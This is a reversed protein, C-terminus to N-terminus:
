FDGYCYGVNGYGAQFIPKIYPLYRWNLIRFIGNFCPAILVNTSIRPYVSIAPMYSDPYIFDYLDSDVSQYSFMAM